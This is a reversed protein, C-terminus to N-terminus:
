TEPNELLIAAGLGGGACTATVAYREGSVRLRRLATSLLRGGTGAFPNGLALSGGWTNLRDEPIAGPAEALGLEERCFETDALAQQNCLIQAAFAEHLEFVGIDEMGLGNRALLQPITMAPGMLMESHLDNVGGFHYDIVRGLPQMGRARAAGASMLLQAAAGDTIGSASGATIIGDEGFAPKLRALREATADARIGDDREVTPGDPVTVAAVDEAYHGAAWAEGALRHSRAAFADSAERSVGFRRVMAECNSGMTQGTTLDTSSPLEPLLDRPRLGGLARIREGTSKALALKAARQRIPRRMRIPIDSFLESGGAVAVDLRGLAIMDCLHALGVAPSIGAMSVSYAPVRAPLGAELGAERAVNTTDLEQVVAGVTLFQIDDAAVGTRTLLARIPQAALEHHRLPSFAGGSHLFPTRVADVIVPQRAAELNRYFSM